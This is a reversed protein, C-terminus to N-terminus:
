KRTGSREASRFFGDTIPLEMMAENSCEPCTVNVTTDIGPTNEMLFDRIAANDRSHLRSVIQQILAPERNGNVSVITKEVSGDLLMDAQSQQEDVGSQPAQGRRGRNRVNGARVSNGELRKNFRRSAMINTIDAQRLFRVGVWIERGSIASLHPLIVKFPENGIQQNAPIVTSYLENMDYVHSSEAKCHPCTVVFKYLNGYTLGRIYYLLFTRDGILLQQPDMAGPLEACTNFMKDIAGGSQVLRRNAFAKEVSQTMARVRVTGNTWGEYYLGGSPIPVEEWPILMEDPANAIAYLFEDDTMDKGLAAIQPNLQEKEDVHVTKENAPNPSSKAPTNNGELDIEREENPM